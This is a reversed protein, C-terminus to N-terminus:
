SYATKITQLRNIEAQLKIGATLKTKALLVAFEADSLQIILLNVDRDIYNWMDMFKNRNEITPDAM